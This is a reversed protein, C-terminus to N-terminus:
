LFIIYAIPNHTVMIAQGAIHPKPATTNKTASSLMNNEASPIYDEQWTGGHPTLAPQYTASTILIVIVLLTNRVKSSSDNFNYYKFYDLLRRAPSQTNEPRVDPHNPREEQTYALSQLNEANLYGALILIEEIERDGAESQFSLLM